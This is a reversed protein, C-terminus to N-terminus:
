PFDFLFKGEVVIEDSGGAVNDEIPIFAEKCGTKLGVEPSNSADTNSLIPPLCAKIEKKVKPLRVKKPIDHSSHIQFVPIMPNPYQHLLYMIFICTFFSDLPGTIYRIVVQVICPRLSFSGPMTCM